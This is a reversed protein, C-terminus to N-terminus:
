VTSLNNQDMYLQIQYKVVTMYEYLEQINKLRFGILDFCHKLLFAPCKFSLSTHLESIM